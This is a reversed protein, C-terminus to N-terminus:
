RQSIVEKMLLEGSIEPHCALVMKVVLDILKDRHELSLVGRSNRGTIYESADLIQWEALTVMYDATLLPCHEKTEVYLGRKQAEVYCLEVYEALNEDSLLWIRNPDLIVKDGEPDRRRNKAKWQKQALIQRQYEEVVPRIIKEHAQALLLVKAAEILEASINVQKTM